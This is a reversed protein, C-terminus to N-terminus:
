GKAPVLSATIGEKEVLVFAFGPLNVASFIQQLGNILGQFYGIKDCHRWPLYVSIQSTKQKEGKLIGKGGKM